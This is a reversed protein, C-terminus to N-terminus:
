ALIDSTLILIFWCMRVNNLPPKKPPFTPVIDLLSCPTVHDEGDDKSMTMMALMSVIANDALFKPIDLGEIDNMQVQMPCLPNVDLHLTHIAQHIVSIMVEVSKSEDCM